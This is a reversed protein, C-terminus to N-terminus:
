LFLFKVRKNYFIKFNLLLFTRNIQFNQSKIFFSWLYIEYVLFFWDIYALRLEEINALHNAFINSSKEINNAVLNEALDLIKL